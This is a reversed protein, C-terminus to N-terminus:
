TFWTTNAYDKNRAKHERNSLILHAKDRQRSRYGLLHFFPKSLFRAVHLNVMLRDKEADAWGVGPLWSLFRHFSWKRLRASLKLAWKPTRRILFFGEEGQKQYLPMFLIGKKEMEVPMGKETALLTGKPLAQFSWFGEEMEFSHVEPLEHRYFIEYFHHDGYAAKKLRNFHEQRDPMSSVAGSYSLALWIFDEANSVARPDDHQGSEFGLAMYGLENIYSLLPGDLYEEIGLIVPVPFLESFRRNIISDNITIFPLTRSSTTHLDIFYFPPPYQALIQHVGQYIVALEKEEPSREDQPKELTKKLRNRGWLRNLDHKLFRQKLSLAPLNGRIAILSGSDLTTQGERLKRFVNELALVGAPENGHIGGFFVMTPGPKESNIQGIVRDEELSTLHDKETLVM